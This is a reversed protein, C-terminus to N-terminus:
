KIIKPEKIKVLTNSTPRVRRVRQISKVTALYDQKKAKIDTM